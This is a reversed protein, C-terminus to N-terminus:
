GIALPYEFLEQSMNKQPLINSEIAGSLTLTKESKQDKSHIFDIMASFAPMQSPVSHVALGYVGYSMGNFVTKASEVHQLTEISYYSLWKRGIGNYSAYSVFENKGKAPTLDSVRMEANGFNAFGSCTDYIIKSPLANKDIEDNVCGSKVDPNIKAIKQIMYDLSGVYSEPNKSSNIGLLFKKREAIAEKEKYDTYGDWNDHYIDQHYASIEHGDMKWSLVEDFRINDSTIYEATQASLMIILKMNYQDAKAVMEKLTQYSETIKNYQNLESNYPENHIAIFYHPIETDIIESNLSKSIFFYSPIAVVLISIIIFLVAIKKM